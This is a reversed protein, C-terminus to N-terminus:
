RDTPELSMRELLDKFAPDRHLHDFRPDMRVNVITSDQENYARRLAAIAEADDGLAAHVLAVFYPSVYERTAGARLADLLRRAEDGRGAAAYAQALMARNYPSRMDLQRIEAIGGDPDGAQVLARGLLSRAAAYGPAQALV